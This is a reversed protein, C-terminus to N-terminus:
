VTLLKGGSAHAPGIQRRLFPLFATGPGDFLYLRRSSHLRVFPLTEALVAATHRHQDARGHEVLSPAFAHGEHQIQALALLRFGLCAVALLAVTLHLHLERVSVTDCGHPLESGRDSM